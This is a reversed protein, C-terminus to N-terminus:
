AVMRCVSVVEQGFPPAVGIFLCPCAGLPLAIFLHAWCGKGGWRPGRNPAFLPELGLMGRAVGTTEANYQPKMLRLVGGWSLLSEIGRWEEEAKLVAYQRGIEVM